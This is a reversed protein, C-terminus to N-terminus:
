ARAISQILLKCEKFRQGTVLGKNQHQAAVCSMGKRLWHMCPVGFKDVPLDRPMRFNDVMDSENYSVDQLRVHRM